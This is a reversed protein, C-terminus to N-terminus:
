NVREKVYFEIVDGEKLDKFDTLSVGCEFGTRVEKVDETFRKLSAIHGDYVVEGNRVVRAKADRQALGDRVICGAVMGASKIKFVQRVEARGIVKDAYVPELLGQLAKDIDEVLKYIVNYKRVDVGESEAMRRAAEDVEVNFAIVIAGSAIALQVDWENIRGTGAHLMRTKVDGRELKGLSNVLPEISGQGDAKIILLLEKRGEAQAQRFFDELSVKSRPMGSITVSARAANEAARERAARENKVVEFMDGANPVDSLGVIAVPTSPPAKHTAKGNDDIMARVRGYISGVVVADGVSLTGNQVLVTATPGRGKDLKAEIVTGLAPRDPNAKIEMSDAMLLIAELLDEIGIKKKASVPVLLVSGGYEDITVGNDHLEKKVREPNAHPKDIKNLAVILPVGAAKSHSIAEKTQPMVGDDAAVVLIALDTAQAGRARMATFAEHGPTDLFTIKRGNHEVQYAGIRQTIGGAEGAAVDTHRIADLLSTKGHDVHGMVTVVPPRPKLKKPDESAYLRQWLTAPAAATDAEAQAPHEERPEFGLETLVIAATDYDLQQNINAMIGNNMLEKIVNIPSIKVLNALDRVTLVSPVEVIKKGNTSM